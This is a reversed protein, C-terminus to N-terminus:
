LADLHSTDNWGVIAFGEASYLMRNIAANDLSWTRPAALDLRAAARYLIDLVGGHAVLAISQGLHRSALRTATEVVRRRFALLSEGGGPSFEPERRRWRLAQEPWRQEIEAFSLGEFTGFARERLGADTHLPVNRLQRLAEATGRARLLDSSYIAQLPEDRLAQALAEAQRLGLADLAVDQHGQIRGDANWGTRGHRIVVLRTLPPM